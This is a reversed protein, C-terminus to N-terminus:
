KLIIKIRISAIGESLKTAKIATAFSAAGNRIIILDYEKTM